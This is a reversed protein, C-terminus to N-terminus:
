VKLQPCHRNLLLRLTEPQEICHLILPKAGAAEVRLSALHEGQRKLRVAVIESLQAAGGPALYLAKDTLQYGVKPWRWRALLIQMPGFIFSGLILPLPLGALWLPQGEKILELALLLWFSSVLFLLSGILAQKWYRFTYCRPAPRGQWLIQEGNELQPWDM